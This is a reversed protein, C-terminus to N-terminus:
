GTKGWGGGLNQHFGAVRHFPARECLMFVLNARTESPCEVFGLSRFLAAARLNERFVKLTWRAPATHEMLLLCLRRGLGRGRRGPAVIIRNLHVRGAGEPVAQGFGVVAGAADVMAFSGGAQGRIATWVRAPDLPFALAPAGWVQLQEPTALWPLVTALDGITAPRLRYGPLAPLRFRGNLRFGHGVM